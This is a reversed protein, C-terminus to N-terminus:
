AHLDSLGAAEIPATRGAGQVPDTHGGAAPHSSWHSCCHHAKVAPGSYVFVDVVVVVVVVVVERYTMWPLTSPSLSPWFSPQLLIVRFEVMRCHRELIRRCCSLRSVQSLAIPFFFHGLSDLDLASASPKPLDAIMHSRLSHSDSDQKLAQCPVGHRTDQAVGFHVGHSTQAAAYGAPCAQKRGLGAVLDPLCDWRDASRSQGQVLRAVDPLHSGGSDSDAVMRLGALNHELQVLDAPLAVTVRVQSLEAWQCSDLGADGSGLRYCGGAM